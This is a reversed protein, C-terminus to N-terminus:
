FRSPKNVWGFCRPVLFIRRLTSSVSRPLSQPKPHAGIEKLARRGPRAVVRGGEANAAASFVKFDVDKMADTLETFELKVRLDPKDSGYRAMADHWTIRPIPRPIEYGALDSWLAAVIAEGFDDAEDAEGPAVLCRGHGLFIDGRGTAQM